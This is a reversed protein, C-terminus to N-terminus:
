FSLVRQRAVAPPAQVQAVQPLPMRRLRPQQQARALTSRQAQLLLDEQCLCQFCAAPALAQALAPSLQLPHKLLSNHPHAVRHQLLGAPVLQWTCLDRRHRPCFRCLHQPLRQHPQQPLYLCKLRRRLTPLTHTTPGWHPLGQGQPPCHLRPHRARGMVMDMAIRSYGKVTGKVMGMAILMLMATNGQHQCCRGVERVPATCLYCRHMLPHHLLRHRHLLDGPEQHLALYAAAQELLRLRAALLLLQLPPLCRNEGKEASRAKKGETRRRTAESGRPRCSMLTLRRAASPFGAALLLLLGLRKRRLGARMHPSPSPASAPRCSTQCILRHLRVGHVRKWSGPWSKVPCATLCAVCVFGTCAKGTVMQRWAQVRAQALHQLLLGQRCGEDQAQAQVEGTLAEATLAMSAAATQVRVQHAQHPYCRPPEELSPALQVLVIATSITTMITMMIIVQAKAARPVTRTRVLLM